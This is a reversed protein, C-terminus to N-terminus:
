KNEKQWKEIAGKMQEEKVIIVINDKKYFGVIFVENSNKHKIFDLENAITMDKILLGTEYTDIIDVLRKITSEKLSTNIKQKKNEAM